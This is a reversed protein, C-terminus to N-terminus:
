VIFLSNMTKYFLKHKKLPSCAFHGCMKTEKNQRGLQTKCVTKLNNCYLLGNQRVLNIMNPVIESKSRKSTTTTFPSTYMFLELFVIFSFLYIM